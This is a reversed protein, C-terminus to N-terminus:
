QLSILSELGSSAQRVLFKEDIKGNGFVGQEEEEEGESGSQYDDSDYKTDSVSRPTPIDHVSEFGNGGETFDNNSSIKKRHKGSPSSYIHQM